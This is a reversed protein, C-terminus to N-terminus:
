ARGEWPRNTWPSEEEEEQEPIIRRVSLLVLGLDGVRALLGYLASQDTVPGALVSVGGPEGRLKLGEFWASWCRGVPGGAPRGPGV